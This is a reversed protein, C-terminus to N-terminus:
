HWAGCAVLGRDMSYLCARVKFPPGDYLPESWNSQNVVPNLIGEWSAGNDESRDMYHSFSGTYVNGWTRAYEHRDGGLETALMFWGWNDASYKRCYYVGSVNCNSAAVAAKGPLPEERLIVPNQWSGPRADPDHTVRTGPAPPPTATAAAAPGTDGPAPQAQAGTTLVGATCVALVTAITARRWTTFRQM